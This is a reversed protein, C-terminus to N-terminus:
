LEAAYSMSPSELQISRQLRVVRVNGNQQGEQFDLALNGHRNCVSFNITNIFLEYINQGILVTAVAISM